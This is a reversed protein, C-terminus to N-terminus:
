LQATFRFYEDLDKVGETGILIRLEATNRSLAKWGGATLSIFEDSSGAPKAPELFFKTYQRKLSEKLSRRESVLEALKLVTTEIVNM